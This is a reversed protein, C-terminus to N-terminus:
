NHLLSSLPYEKLLTLLIEFFSERKAILQRSNLIDEKLVFRLIEVVKMRGLGIRPHDQARVNLKVCSKEIFEEVLETFKARVAEDEPMVFPVSTLFAFLAPASYVSVNENDSM